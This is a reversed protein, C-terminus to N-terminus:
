GYVKLKRNGALLHRLSDPNERCFLWNFQPSHYEFYGDTSHRLNYDDIYYAQLSYEKILRNIFGKEVAPGLVEIILFKVESLKENAGDLFDFEANEIDVKVCANELKENKVFQSFTCVEIDVQVIEHERMFDNTLSGQSPSTIDRYFTTQGDFSGVAKQYPLMLRAKNRIINEYLLDFLKGDPEFLYIPITEGIRDRVFFVSTGMTHVLTSLVEQM